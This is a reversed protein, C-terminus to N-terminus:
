LRCSAIRCCRALMKTFRAFFLLLLCSSFVLIKQKQLRSLHTLVLPPSGGWESWLARPTGGEPTSEEYECREMAHFTPRRHRPPCRSAGIRCCKKLRSWRGRIKTRPRCAACPALFIPRIGGIAVSVVHPAAPDRAGRADLQLEVRSPLQPPATGVRLGEHVPIMVAPYAHAIEPCTHVIAPNESRTHVSM